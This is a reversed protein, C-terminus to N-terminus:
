GNVLYGEGWLKNVNGGWGGIKRRRRGGVLTVLFMNSFRGFPHKFDGLVSVYKLLV